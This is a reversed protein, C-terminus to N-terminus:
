TTARLRPARGTRPDAPPRRSPGRLRRLRSVQPLRVAHGAGHARRARNRDAAAGQAVCLAGLRPGAHDPVARARFLPRRASRRRRVAAAAHRRPVRVRRGDSRAARRDRPPGPARLVRSQQAQAPRQDRRGRPLRVRPRRGLLCQARRRRAQGDRRGRATAGRGVGRRDARRLRARPGCPAPARRRRDCARRAEHGHAVVERLEARRTLDRAITHVILRARAQRLERALREADGGSAAAEIAPRVDDWRSRSSSGSRGVM